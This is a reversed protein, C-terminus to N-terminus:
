KMHMFVVFAIPLATFKPTLDEDTPRWNLTEDLWKQAEHIDIKRVASLAEVGTIRYPPRFNLDTDRETYPIM